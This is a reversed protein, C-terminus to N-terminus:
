CCHRAALQLPMRQLVRAFQQTLWATFTMRCRRDYLDDTVCGTSGYGGREHTQRVRDVYEKPLKEMPTTAPDADPLLKDSVAGDGWILM